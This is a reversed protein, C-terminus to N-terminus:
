HNLIIKKIQKENENQTVLLYIGNPLNNMGAWKIDSDKSITEKRYIKGDISILSVNTLSNIGSLHIILEDNLIPNSYIIKLVPKSLDVLGSIISFSFYDMFVVDGVFDIEIVQKGQNLFIPTSIENFKAWSNTSPLLLDKYLGNKFNIKIKSNTNKTAYDVTLNYTGTNPVNITYKLWEGSYTSTLFTNSSSQSIDVGENLRYAGGTNQNDTDHYAIGEGGLDFDEFEIKCPITFVKYPTEVPLVNFSTTVSSPSYFDNGSQYAKVTVKGAIKQLTIVNGNITAPGSEISYTIPFLDADSNAKIEFPMDAINKTSITDFTLRQLKRADKWVKLFVFGEVSFNLRGLDTLKFVTSATPFQDNESFSKKDIDYKIVNYNDLSGTLEKFQISLTTDKSSRNWIALYTTDNETSALGQFNDTSFTMPIRKGKMQGYFWFAYYAANYTYFTQGSKLFHWNVFPFFTWYDYTEGWGEIYQGVSQAWFIKDVGKLSDLGMQFLTEFTRACNRYSIFSKSKSFATNWDGYAWSFESIIFETKKNIAERTLAYKDFVNKAKDFRDIAGAHDSQSLSLTEDWEYYHHYSIFDLSLNDQIIKDIFQKYWIDNPTGAWAFGCGGLKLNPHAQCIPTICDVAFKFESYFDNFTTYGTYWNWASLDPEGFLELYIDKGNSANVLANAISTFFNYMKTSDGKVNPHTNITIFNTCGNNQTRKIIWVQSNGDDIWTGDATQKNVDLQFRNFKLNLPGLTKVSDYIQDMWLVKEPSYGGFKKDLLETNSNDNIFVTTISQAKIGLILIFLCGIIFKVKYKYM